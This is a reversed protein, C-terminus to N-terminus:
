SPLDARRYFYGQVTEPDFAPHIGLEDLSRKLRRSTVDRDSSLEALSAYDAQFAALDEPMVITQPSRNTPNRAIRSSLVQRDTLAEVAKTTTRLRREVERLSLGGHDELRVNQRVEAVDVAVSLYGRQGDLKGVWGLRGYLLLRVIEVASCCAQKAADPIIAQDDGLKAIPVAQVLLRGRFSDLEGRAFAYSGVKGEVLPRIFGNEFLMRTHLRPANLYAGAANLSMSGPAEELLAAARDASFLVHNDPSKMDADRIIGAELLLKRLRKPHRGTQLHASRISHVRRVSVPKGFVEDDPGLPMTEIACTRIADRLPDYVPDSNEYALWEYLRGFTSRLGWDRPTSSARLNALLEKTAAQGGQAIRLGEAGARSWDAQSMRALRVQAGFLSVAGTMECVRAAAYWPLADLLGVEVPPGWLRGLLYRELTSQPAPEVEEALAGVTKIMPEVVRVFDYTHIGARHDHVPVLSIGHRQCSRISALSWSTRAFPRTAVPGPQSAMDDIMCSPCIHVRKRRLSQQRLTEGNLLIGDKSHQLSYPRLAGEGAGGVRELRALAADHGRVLESASFGMDLCFTNFTACGHLAGLRSAYSTPAEEEGPPLSMALAAHM